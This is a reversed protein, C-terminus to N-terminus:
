DIGKENRGDGFEYWGWPKCTEGTEAELDAGHLAWAREAEARSKFPAGTAESEGRLFDFAVGTLLYARRFDSLVGVKVKGARPNKRRRTM